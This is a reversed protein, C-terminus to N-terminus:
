LKKEVKPTGIAEKLGDLTKQLDDRRLKHLNSQEIAKSWHPKIDDIEARFQTQAKFELDVLEYMGPSVYNNADDTGTLETTFHKTAMVIKQTERDIRAIDILLGRSPGSFMGAPPDKLVAEYARRSKTLNDLGKAELAPKGVKPAELTFGGDQLRKIELTHQPIRSFLGPAGRLQRLEALYHLHNTYLYPEANRLSDIAPQVHIWTRDRAAKAQTFAALSKDYESAIRVSTKVSGDSSYESPKLSPEIRGFDKDRVFLMVAFTVAALSFIAHFFVLAKGFKNVSGYRYLLFGILKGFFTGM